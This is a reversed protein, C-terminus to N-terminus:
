RINPAMRLFWTHSKPLYLMAVATIQAGLLLADSAGQLASGHLTESLQPIATFCGMVFMVTYLVRAWNRGAWIKYLNFLCLAVIFLLLGIVIGRDPITLLEAASSAMAIVFTVLLMVVAAEVVRPRVAADPMDMGSAEPM